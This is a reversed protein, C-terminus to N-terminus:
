HVWIHSGFTAKRLQIIAKEFFSLWETQDSRKQVQKTVQFEERLRLLLTYTAEEWVMCDLNAQYHKKVLYFISASDPLMEAPLSVDERLHCIIKVFKRWPKGTSRMDMHSHVRSRRDIQASVIENM